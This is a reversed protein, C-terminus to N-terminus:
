DKINLHANGTKFKKGLVNFQYKEFNAQIGTEAFLNDKDTLFRYRKTGDASM